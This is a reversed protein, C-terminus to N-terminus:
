GGLLWREADAVSDFVKFDGGNNKALLMAFNMQDAISEYVNVFAVKTRVGIQNQFAQTAFYLSGAGPINPIDRDILLKMAHEANLREAIEGLYQKATDIDMFDAQVRAYLYGDRKEFALNYDLHTM